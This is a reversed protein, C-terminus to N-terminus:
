PRRAPTPLGLVERALIALTAPEPRRAPHIELQLPARHLALLPRLSHWPVTGAGPALHLDLKLPEIGGARPTALRAGFNDHVHFLAVQDLVPEVLDALGCGALDAAIHAHGLDLCMGVRDSDLMRVACAVAAPDNCVFEGGSRYVPALNEIALTAGSAAILGLRRGLSRMEDGLRERVGPTRIPVRL